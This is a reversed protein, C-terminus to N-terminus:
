FENSAGPTDCELTVDLPRTVYRITQASDTACRLSGQASLVDSITLTEQQSVGTEVAVCFNEIRVPAIQSSPIRLEFEVAGTGQLKDAAFSVKSDAVSISVSHPRWDEACGVTLTLAYTLSPLHTAFRGARRPAVAVVPVDASIALSHVAEPDAASVAVASLLALLSCLRM